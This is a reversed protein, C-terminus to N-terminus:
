YFKKKGLPFFKWTPMASGYQRLTPQSQKILHFKFSFIGGKLKLEIDQRNIIAAQIYPIAPKLCYGVMCVKRSWVAIRSVKSFHPDLVKLKEPRMKRIIFFPYSSGIIFPVYLSLAADYFECAPASQEFLITKSSSM